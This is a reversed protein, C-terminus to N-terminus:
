NFYINRFQEIYKDSIKKKTWINKFSQPEELMHILFYLSYIGCETNGMQHEFPHNQYFKFNKGIDKAQQQVTKVFKMINEPIQEGTSDFYYIYHNTIDIFLSVWHSGSKDHTDLNFSIGIKNIGNKIKKSLQFNCLHNCVCNNGIKTDYDLSSSGIFEFHPYTEQYQQMVSEIDYNSLWTNPNKNWEKPKKPSFISNFKLKDNASLKDIWCSERDCENKFKIKLENYILNPINTYIKKDPNNNNWINKLEILENNTFCTNKNKKRTPHCNM